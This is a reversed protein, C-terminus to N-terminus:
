SAANSETLKNGSPRARWRLTERWFNDGWQGPAVKTGTKGERCNDRLNDRLNGNPVFNNCIINQFSLIM